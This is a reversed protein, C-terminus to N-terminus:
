LACDISTGAIPPAGGQFLYYLGYIVDGLDASGDNNIDNVRECPTAPGGQYQYALLYLIDELASASGGSALNGNSDGVGYITVTDLTITDSGVLNTVTIVPTVVVGLLDDGLNAPASIGVTYPSNNAAGVTFTEAPLGSGQLEITYTAAADGGNDSADDIQINLFNAFADGTVAGGTLDLYTATASATPAVALPATTASFTGTGAEGAGWGGIRILVTDGASVATEVTTTFGGCGASDGGCAIQTLATCDGSYLAIDSDFDITDCTSVTLTGDIPATYTWWGDQLMQGFSGPDCVTDDFADASDTFLTTDIANDGEMAMLATDCEDGAATFNINFTGEGGADNQWTGIRIIYTEGGNVAIPATTGTFGGCGATDCSGGITVLTSCDGSYVGVNSDFNILDCTDVVITGDATATYTYWVDSSLGGGAGGACGGSGDDFDWPEASETASANAVANSGDVAVFADLCEDNGPPTLCLNTAGPSDALLTHDFTGVAWPGNTDPCREVHGPVFTGDPGVTNACYVLEGGSTQGTAPDIANELMAICDVISTWPELDLVGDDDADLDTQLPATVDDYDTVLLHTVNDSNEFGLTATLDATGLTFASEAVVFYGSAGISSGTLDVISEVVGSAGTGDGITILWMGDLSQPFGALEVFEDNDPGPQDIRIENLVPPDPTVEINLTTDGTAGNWGGVQVYYSDGATVELTVESMFAAGGAVNACDDDSSALCADGAQPCAAGDYVILVTDDLSGGAECTNISATGTVTATYLYWMDNAMNSDCDIPGDAVSVTNDVPHSGEGVAIASPGCTDGPAPPQGLGQDDLIVNLLPFTSVGLASMPTPSGIGCAGAIIFSPGVEGNGGMRMVSGTSQGEPMFFAPILVDDAYLAVPEAFTVTQVGATGDAITLPETHLLERPTFPDTALSDGPARYIRIEAPQSGAGSGETAAAIGFEVGLVRVGNPCNVLANDTPYIRLYENDTHFGSGDACAAVATSADAPDVSNSGFDPCAQCVFDNVCDPDDCDILTDGDDDLGDDCITEANGATETITLDTTGQAGNWGGVQILYTNGSVVPITVTSSFNPDTCGDDDSALCPDGAVPCAAGDYVILVTDDLTGASGCTEITADGTLTATYSYWMDAAMNSDCDSPGDAAQASNDVPTSGPAVAIATDCTDGPITVSINLDSTGLAGNWGGVQVLYTTGATVPMSVTSSFNPDTCGDDDSALCPDGAVPCAAGDYVILVSDDLTGATGCTEITADGSITATYAFWVDAAMNSDCDSPGDVASNTNDFAFSGEGVAVATACEDGAPAQCQPEAACDPDDCDALGDLDEDGPTACDEPNGAGTETITLASSGTAVNWGGVQIYFQAGPTVPIDVTSMFASGGATNACGDDNSALGLDGAVPCAAGDYVILVTDDLSGGALCTGINASGDVTATYLFWVDAAMNSDADNPGDVLSLTNDFAHVGDGTVATATACEDNPLAVSINLDSTGTAGNWGGVQVYYSEGATVPITVTSSFNPTTCGDDDSALCADGAQPCAASDYVILVSDDLTGATGCTEITADGSATATYLFWMDAGMNSDCDSPGDSVSVSNDFPTSGEGVAIADACTDGPVSPAACAPDASCDPDDCDVLTDGDDDLGDTCNTETAPAACAPDAACDPDDCDVLTDGDDDLGDTCNTETTPGAPTETINLDSTGTAGNWGGVQVYYSSGATVPITVTSSFNPTTCGDDDSALCPDGAVPCAASDYVILVSDDLTGATGCTEITADGTETATYLFWMDAGMNGDCDSPGDVASTSNDFATSGAGISIAEACTDGTPPPPPGTVSLDSNGTAGNWGGVQILYTNGGVVPITVTSSFNPTTCGDDDSALCADGAVPCAAGDYVILVTDDLTGASGCTEFTATGDDLATYSFWMDAAMNGDCDSPGDAVSATNDFPTIGDTVVTAEACTDGQAHVPGGIWLLAAVLAALWTCRSANM